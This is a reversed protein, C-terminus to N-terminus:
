NPSMDLQPAPEAAPPSKSAKLRAAALDEYFADIDLETAGRRPFMAEHRGWDIPEKCFVDRFAPEITKRMVPYADYKAKWTWFIRNKKTTQDYYYLNVQLQTTEYAFSQVYGAGVLFTHDLLKPEAKLEPQTVRIYGNSTLYIGLLDHILVARDDQAEQMPLLCFGLYNSVPRTPSEDIYFVSYDTHLFYTLGTVPNVHVCGALGAVACVALARVVTNM